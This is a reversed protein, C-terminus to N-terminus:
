EDTGGEPSELAGPGMDMPILPYSRGTRKEFVRVGSEARARRNLCARPTLTRKAKCTGADSLTISDKGLRNRVEGTHM